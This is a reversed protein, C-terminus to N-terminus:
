ISIKLKQMQWFIAKATWTMFLHTQSPYIGIKRYTNTDIQIIFGKGQSCKQNEIGQIRLLSGIGVLCFTLLVCSQMTHVRNTLFYHILIIIFDRNQGACWIVTELKFFLFTPFVTCFTWQVTYTHVTCMKNTMFLIYSHKCFKFEIWCVWFWGEVKFILVFNLFCHVIHMTCMRNTLFYHTFAMWKIRSPFFLANCSSIMKTLELGLWPSIKKEQFRIYIPKKMYELNVYYVESTLVAKFSM